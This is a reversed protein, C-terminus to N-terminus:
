YEVINLKISKVAKIFEGNMISDLDRGIFAIRITPKGPPTSVSDIYLGSYGNGVDLPQYIKAKYGSVQEYWIKYKVNSGHFYDTAGEGISYDIFEKPGIQIKGQNTGRLDRRLNGENLNKWTSPAM